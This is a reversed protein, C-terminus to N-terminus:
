ARVWDAARAADYAVALHDPPTGPACNNGDRLIFRGGRAVGSSALARVADRIAGPPGRRLLEPSLNGILEIDPGLEARARALDTPWGTEFSEVGLERVITPFHHQARGCLHMMLRGAGRFEAALRRHHPLVFARYAAPSLLAISDDAMWAWEGPGPLAAGTYARWARVRAVIGDTVWALLDHAYREREILDLCLETAGRLNCAVTFPGDSGTPGWPRGVPRGAFEDRRSRDDFYEHFEVARRMLHGTLPHPLPTDYLREPRERFMPITDPLDNGPYVVACGFWGAEYVNFWQPAVAWVDPLGTEADQVVQDRSWRAFVLEVERMVAPDEFFRRVTWRGRNLAPDLLVMRSNMAWTVPPRAAVGARYGAWLDRVAADRGAGSGPAPM